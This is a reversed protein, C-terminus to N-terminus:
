LALQAEGTGALATAQQVTHGGAAALEAARSFAREAAAPERVSMFLSASALHAQASEPDLALARDIAGRADEFQSEAAHSSAIGLLSSLDGPDAARVGEFAARAEGPRGLALLAEGRLRQIGLRDADMAALEPTIEELLEAHRRLALMARGLELAITEKPVGLSVARRLEK